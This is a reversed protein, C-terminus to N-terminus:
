DFPEIHSKELKCTHTPVNQLSSPSWAITKNFSFQSCSLNTGYQPILINIVMLNNVIGCSNVISVLLLINVVFPM